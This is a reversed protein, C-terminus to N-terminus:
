VIFGCWCHGMAVNGFWNTYDISRRATVPARARLADMWNIKKKIQL